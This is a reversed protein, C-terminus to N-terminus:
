IYFLATPLKKITPPQAFIKAVMTPRRLFNQSFHRLATGWFVLNPGFHLHNLIAYNSNKKKFINNQNPAYLKKM